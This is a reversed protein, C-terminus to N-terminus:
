TSGNGNRVAHAIGVPWSPRSSTLLHRYRDCLAQRPMRGLRFLDRSVISSSVNSGHAVTLTMAILSGFQLECRRRASKATLYRSPIIWADPPASMCTACQRSDDGADTIACSSKIKRVTKYECTFTTSQCLSTALDDANRVKVLPKCM